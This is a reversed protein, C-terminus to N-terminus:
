SFNKIMTVYANTGDTIGSIIDIGTDSATVAPTTGGQWKWTSDWGSVAFGTGGNVGNKLLITFQKGTVMNALASVTTVDSSLTVIFFNGDNMNLTMTSTGQAVAFPVLRSTNATIDAVTYSGTADIKTPTVASAAIKGTTVGLDKVSIAGDGNLAVSSDDVAGAAFTANNVSNNMNTSTFQGSSPWTYGINLISM